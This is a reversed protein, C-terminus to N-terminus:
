ASRAGSGTPSSMWEPQLRWVQRVGNGDHFCHGATIVWEPAILSGSCGGSRVGGETLPIKTFSLKASFSQVPEQAEVATDTAGSAALVDARHQAASALDVVTVVFALMAGTM